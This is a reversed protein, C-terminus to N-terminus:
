DTPRKRLVAIWFPVAAAAVGLGLWLGAGSALPIPPAAPGCRAQSIVIDGTAVLLDAKVHVANVTLSGDKNRIQENFIITVLDTLGLDVEVVTNPGPEAAVEVGALRVDALVTSGQVGSQTADCFAQVLGISGLRALLLEVDATAAEAHVVGTEEDLEAASTLLGTTLVGPIEATAVSAQRPGDTHSPSIPGVRVVGTGALTLEADLAFASGDGPAAAAPAAGAILAAAVALGLLGARRAMRNHM